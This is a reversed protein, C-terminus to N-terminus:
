WVSFCFWVFDSKGVLDYM